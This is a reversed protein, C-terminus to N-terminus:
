RIKLSDLMQDFATLSPTFEEAKCREIRKYDPDQKLEKMSHAVRLEKTMDFWDVLKPHSVGISAIVTYGRDATVGWVNYNLHLNHPAYLAGDQTTQSLFSIANGWSVHKSRVRAIWDLSENPSLLGPGERLDVVEGTKRAAACVAAVKQSYTAFIRVTWGHNESIKALGRGFGGSYETMAAVPTLHFPPSNLIDEGARYRRVANPQFPPPIALRTEPPHLPHEAACAIGVFTVM